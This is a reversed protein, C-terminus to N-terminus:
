NTTAPNGRQCASRYPSAVHTPVPASNENQGESRSAVASINTAYVPYPRIAVSPSSTRSGARVIGRAITSASATDAASYTATAKTATDARPDHSSAIAASAPPAGSSAAAACNRRGHTRGTTAAPAS